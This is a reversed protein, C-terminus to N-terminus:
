RQSIRTAAKAPTRDQPPKLEAILRAADANTEVIQQRVPWAAAKAADAATKGDKNPLYPDAGLAILTKIVEGWGRLAAGHLATNGRDDRANVEAGAAALLKIVAVAQAQTKYKGRTDNTQNNLGAAAMLPTIGGVQDRWARDVALDVRAGAKLLLEVAEADGARAARLLPTAGTNYILDGGRDNGIARFPPAFKLQANPNAGAALLQRILELSTTEDPSPLDARGGVPVTNYDVAAWLPTRGWFDWRNVDAGAKILYAALDFHANWVALFLPTRGDPDHADVKAGAEVLSKACPLCGERAAFMLPTLGGSPDYRVRPEATVRVDNEHERSRADVAAGKAILLRVMEPQRQEAAWMLASQQEYSEVADVKAGHDLLLSAAELNATRAVIMLSTQGEASPSDADAGADLLAKLVEVDGNTAAERMPTDGFGNAAKVDAGARILAKVLAPDDNHVAWLLATSGDEPSPQNVGKRRAILKLAAVRDGSKVADVLSTEALAPAAACLALVAALWAAKM